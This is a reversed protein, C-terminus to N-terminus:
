KYLQELDERGIKRVKEVSTELGCVSCYYDDGRFAYINSIKEASLDGLETTLGQGTMKVYSEKITWIKCFYEDPYSSTLFAEYEEATLVRKATKGSVSRINQVDVGVEFDAIVCAAVGKSHSLNFHIRPHNKLVPKGKSAIEFEVPENIDYVERLAFRLLLYVAASANKGISSRLKSVKQYRQPSLLPIMSESFNNESLELKNIIYLM